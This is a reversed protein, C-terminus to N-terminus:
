LSRTRPTTKVLVINTDILQLLQVHPTVDVILEM